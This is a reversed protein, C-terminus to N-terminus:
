FVKRLDLQDESTKVSQARFERNGSNLRKNALEEHVFFDLLATGPQELVCRRMPEDFPEVRNPESAQAKLATFRNLISGQARSYRSCGRDVSCRADHYM